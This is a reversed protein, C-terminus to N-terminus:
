GRLTHIEEFFDQFVVPDDSDVHCMLRLREKVDQRLASGDVTVGFMTVAVTVVIAARRSHPIMECM